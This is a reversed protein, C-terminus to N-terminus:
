KVGRNPIRFTHSLRNFQTNRHLNYNSSDQSHYNAINGLSQTQNLSGNPVVSMVSSNGSPIQSTHPTHSHSNIFNSEEIPPASAISSPRTNSNKSGKRSEKGKPRAIMEM